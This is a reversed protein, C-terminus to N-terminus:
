VEFIHLKNCARIVEIFRHCYILVLQFLAMHVRHESELDPLTVTALSKSSPVLPLTSVTESSQLSKPFYFPARLPPLWWSLSFLQPLLLAMLLPIVPGALMHPSSGPSHLPAMVAPFNLFTKLSCSMDNWLCQSWLSCPPLLSASAFLNGGLALAAWCAPLAQRSQCASTEPTVHM